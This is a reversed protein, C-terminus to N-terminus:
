RAAEPAPAGVAATRADQGITKALAGEAEHLADAIMDICITELWSRVDGEELALHHVYLMEPERRAAAAPRRSVPSLEGTHLQDLLWV